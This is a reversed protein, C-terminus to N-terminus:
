EGADQWQHWSADPTGFSSVVADPINMAARRAASESRFLLEALTGDEPFVVLWGVVMEVGSDDGASMVWSGPDDAGALLEAFEEDTLHAWRARAEAALDDGGQWGASVGTGRPPGMPNNTSM